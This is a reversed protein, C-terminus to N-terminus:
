KYNKNKQNKIKYTSIWPNEWAFMVIIKPKKYKKKNGIIKGKRAQNTRIRKSKEKFAKSSKIICDVDKKKRQQQHASIEKKKSIYAKSGACSLLGLFLISLLYIFFKIYLHSRM